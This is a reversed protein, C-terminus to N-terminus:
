IIDCPLFLDFKCFQEIYSTKSSAYKKLKEQLEPGESKLFDRVAAKTEEHERFTQLPALSEVYKRCTSELDPIPLKPLSDQNAFTVGAKRTSTSSDSECKRSYQDRGLDFSISSLQPQQQEGSPSSIQMTSPMIAESGPSTMTFVKVALRSYSMTNGGEILHKDLPLLTDHM